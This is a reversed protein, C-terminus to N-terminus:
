DLDFEYMVFPKATLGYSEYLGRAPHNDMETGVWGEECGSAKGLAPMAGLM